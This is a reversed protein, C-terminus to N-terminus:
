GSPRVLARMPPADYDRADADDRRVVRHFFTM